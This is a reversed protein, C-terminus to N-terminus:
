PTWIGLASTAPLLATHADARGRITSLSISTDESSSPMVKYHHTWKLPGGSDPYDTRPTAVAGCGLGCTTADVTAPPGPPLPDVEIALSTGTTTAAVSFAVSVLIASSAIATFIVLSDATTIAASSAMAFTTASATTIFVTSWPAVTPFVVTPDSPDLEEEEEEGGPPPIWSLPM